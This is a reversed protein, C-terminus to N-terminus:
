LEAGKQTGLLYFVTLGSKQNIKQPLGFPMDKKRNGM